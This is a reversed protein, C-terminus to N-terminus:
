GENLRSPLANSEGVAGTAKRIQATVDSRLRKADALNKTKGIGRMWSDFQKQGTKVSITESRKLGHTTTSFPSPIRSAATDPSPAQKDLAERFQNVM